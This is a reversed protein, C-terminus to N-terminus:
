ARVSNTALLLQANRVREDLTMSKRIETQGPAAGPQLEPLRFNEDRIPDYASPDSPDNPVIGDPSFADFRLGINVIFNNIEFKDQIYAAFEIPSRTYQEYGAEGLQARRMIPIGTVASSEDLFLVESLLDLRHLKVDVGFKILNFKNVQSTLDGRFNITRTTRDFLSNPTGGVLFELGEQAQRQGVADAPTAINIGSSLYRPDLPDDYLRSNQNSNLWSAGLTYFTNSSITHTANIIGTYSQRRQTQQTQPILSRSFDFDQFNEDTWMGQVSVKFSGSPRFTLKGLGSHKRYPNMPVFAGNGTAFRRYDVSSPDIKEYVRAQGNVPDSYTFYTRQNTANLFFIANQAAEPTQFSGIFGGTTDQKLLIDGLEFAQRGYFRGEDSFYRANAFFTLKDGLGFAPGSLSGQIDTSAYPKINSINQFLGTRNTVFDGFFSQFSGEYKSGGEKTVVNVIGAMAQGYEANYGGTLLELEQIAQSEVGINNVGRSQNGDYVDNVAFGDVIYAVEGRRGGRVTGGVVGAQIELVQSPNQIPLAKIEEASVAARTATMDNIVLPREATIVVEQTQVEEAGMKFDAKATLDINVKINKLTKNQYGVYSARIEYVGPPVNLITYNGEIDTKAGLKTGVVVITAGILPEGTTADVVVGAIKGTTGAYLSSSAGFATLFVLMIVM